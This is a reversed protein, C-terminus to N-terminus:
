AMIQLLEPNVMNGGYIVVLQGPQRFRFMMEIIASSFTNSFGGSLVQTTSYFFCARFPAHKRM